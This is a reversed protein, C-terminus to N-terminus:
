ELPTYTIRLSMHSPLAKNGGLLQVRNATTPRGNTIIYLGQNAKKGNLIQQIHRAINFKYVKNVADYEGGFYTAGEFYDSMILPGLLSDAITAVLKPCPFYTSDPGAISLPDVPLILEAKNIAIKGNKLLDMIYPMSIKTRLGAMAQVFVKDEPVSMSSNLQSKIETASLYDHEFHSFRACGGKTIAFYYSLSDNNVANSNHYYLTVRSNINTADMYLIAGTGIPTGSATTIYLGKFYSQFITNSSYHTSDDLFKQCFNKDLTIRLQSPMKPDNGLKVSDKTNPLIYASGIETNYILSTDSYYKASTSMQDTVEYVKFKEPYLNGYKQGGLYVLSLVASDLQPNTGFAPNSKGSPICIQTFISSTSIGFVPDNCIGLLLPSVATTNLSDDRVTHAILTLTDSFQANLLDGGPLIPLGIDEPTKKKCSVVLAILSLLLFYRIHKSM